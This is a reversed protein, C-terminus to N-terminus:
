FSGNTDLMTAAQIVPWHTHSNLLVIHFQVLAPLPSDDWTSAWKGGDAAAQRYHIDLHDVGNALVLEQPPPVPKIAVANPHPQWRLLLRHRADVGIVVQARRIPDTQPEAPLRTMFTMRHQEGAFPKDDAALPPLAQEVLLRLIRDVREMETAHDVLRTQLNWAGIGFRTAQIMGAMVFGLVVVAVLIELLTFGAEAHPQRQKIPRRGPPIPRMM